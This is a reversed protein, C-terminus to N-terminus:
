SRRESSLRARRTPVSTASHTRIHRPRMLASAWLLREIVELPVRGCIHALLSLSFLVLQRVALVVMTFQMASAASM